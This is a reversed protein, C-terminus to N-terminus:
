VEFPDSEISVQGGFRGTLSRFDAQGLVVLLRVSGWLVGVAERTRADWLRGAHRTGSNAISSGFVDALM